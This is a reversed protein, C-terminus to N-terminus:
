KMITSRNQLRVVLLSLSSMSLLFPEFFGDLLITGDDNIAQISRAQINPQSMELKAQKVYAENYTVIDGKTFIFEKEM